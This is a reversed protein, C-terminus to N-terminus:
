KRNKSGMYKGIVKRVAMSWAENQIKRYEDWIEWHHEMCYKHAGQRREEKGCIKCFM